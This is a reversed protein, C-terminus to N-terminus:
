TTRYLKSARCGSSSSRLYSSTESLMSFFVANRKDRKM